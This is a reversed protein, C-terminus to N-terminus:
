IDSSTLPLRITITTLKDSNIHISGQHLDIVHHCMSLGIGVGNKKTTTFPQFLHSLIEPPFGLGNDTIRIEYYDKQKISSDSIRATSIDEIILHTSLQIEPFSIDHETLADIANNLLSFIVQRIQIEDITIAIFSPEYRTILKIMSSPNDLETLHICDQILQNICCHTYNLTNVKLNARINKIIQGAKKANVVVREMAQNMDEFSAPHHYLRQM